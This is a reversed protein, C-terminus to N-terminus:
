SAASPTAARSPKPRPDWPIRITSPRRARTGFDLIEFGAQELRERLARKLAVGRHDSAMAMRRTM